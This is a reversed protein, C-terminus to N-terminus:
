LKVVGKHIMERIYNYKIEIHKSNKHCMPNLSFNICSHNDYYIYTEELELDFLEAILKRLWVAEGCALWIAV